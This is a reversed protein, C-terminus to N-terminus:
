CCKRYLREVPLHSQSYKTNDADRAANRSKARCNPQQFVQCGFAITEEETGARATVSGAPARLLGAGKIVKQSLVFADDATLMDEQEPKSGGAGGDEVQVGNADACALVDEKSVKASKCTWGNVPHRVM